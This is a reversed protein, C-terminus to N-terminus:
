LRQLLGAADLTIFAVRDATLVAVAGAYGHGVSVDVMRCPPPEGAGFALLSPAADPPTVVVDTMPVRLGDGTAKLVAEKRTWYTYFDRPTCVFEQEVSTCVSPTLTDYGRTGIGEVDVGVPGATTLAVAVVDRSHSISAELGSHTLRPRGHPRGCDDCRRDVRVAAAEVGTRLGVAARLLVAALTFRDRDADTRFRTQRGFEAEDLLAHHRTELYHLRALYVECVPPTPAVWARPYRRQAPHKCEAM